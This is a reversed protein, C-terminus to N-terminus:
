QEDLSERYQKVAAIAQGEERHWGLFKVNGLCHYYTARWKSQEKRSKIYSVGKAESDKVAPKVTMAIYDIPRRATVNWYDYRQAIYASRRQGCERMENALFQAEELASQLCTFLM